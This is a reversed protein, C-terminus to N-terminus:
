MVLILPIIEVFSLEDFDQIDVIFEKGQVDRRMPVENGKLTFFGEDGRDTALRVMVRDGAVGVRMFRLRKQRETGFNVPAIRVGAHIQGGNQDPGGLLFLGDKGAAYYQGRYQAFSNFPWGTYAAPAFANDNLVWTEYDEQQEPFLEAGSLGGSVCPIVRGVVTGVVIGLSVGSRSGVPDNYQWTPLPLGTQLGLDVGGAGGSAAPVHVVVPLGVKLGLSVGARGGPASPVTVQPLIVERLDVGGKSGVSCPIVLPTGGYWAPALSVGGKGGISGPVVIDPM